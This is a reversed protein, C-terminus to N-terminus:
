NEVKRVEVEAKNCDDDDDKLSQVLETHKSVQVPECEEM